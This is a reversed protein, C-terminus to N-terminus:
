AAERLDDRVLDLFEQMHKFRRYLARWERAMDELVMQRTLPDQQVKELPEYVHGDTRRVAHFARVSRAENTEDAERYVVRVSRILQQAQKRRWEEGAAADDWEFRSHLPHEPDRATDVVLAPTLEGNADYVQQLQVRLAESM